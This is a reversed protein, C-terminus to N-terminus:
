NGIIYVMPFTWDMNLPISLVKCCDIELFKPSSHAPALSSNIKPFATLGKLMCGHTRNHIALQLIADFIVDWSHISSKSSECVFTKLGMGQM